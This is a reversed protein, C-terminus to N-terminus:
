ENHKKNKGNHSKSKIGLDHGTGDYFIFDPSSNDLIDNISDDTWFM